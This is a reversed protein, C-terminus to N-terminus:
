HCCRSGRGWFITRTDCPPRRFIWRYKKAGGLSFCIENEKSPIDGFLAAVGEAEEVSNNYRRPPGPVGWRLVGSSVPSNNYVYRTPPGFSGGKLKENDKFTRRGGPLSSCPGMTHTRFIRGDIEDGECGGRGEGGVRPRAAALPELVM